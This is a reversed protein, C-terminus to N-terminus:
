HIILLNLRWKMESVIHFEVKLNVMVLKLLTRLQLVLHTKLINRPVLGSNDTIVRDGNLDAM